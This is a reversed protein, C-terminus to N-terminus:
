RQRVKEFADADTSLPIIQKKTKGKPISLVRQDDHFHEVKLKAVDDPRFPMLLLAKIFRQGQPSAQKLLSLRVAPKLYLERRGDADKFAQLEQSWDHNSAVERRQHALNLAARLPTANRNFTGRKLGKQLLCKKWEAFHRPALKRLEVSAIRDDYILRKFREAADNAASASKEIRLHEVYAECAYFDELV